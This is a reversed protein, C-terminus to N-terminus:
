IWDRPTLFDQVLNFERKMLRDSPKAPWIVRPPMSMLVAEANAKSQLGFKTGRDYMLNFEAYRGRRYLMFTEDEETFPLSMRKKLIEVYAQLFSRGTAQIFHWTRDNQVLDDFFIGGIGRREQRHPLYFYADCEKKYQAYTQTSLTDCASKAYAHWCEADENYGIYPTLDFGGGFWETEGVSFMRLNAHTTPCHPNKPHIVVSVGLVSFPHHSLEPRLNSASAPMAHGHISSFSVGAKEILAGDELRIGHSHGGEPYPHDHLTKTLTPDLSILAGMINQQWEQLWELVHNHM